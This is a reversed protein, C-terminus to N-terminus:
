ESAQLWIMAAPRKHFSGFEYGGMRSMAQSATEHEFPACLYATRMGRLFETSSVDDLFSRLERVDEEAASAGSYNVLISRIDTDAIKRWLEAKAESRERYTVVGSYRVEAVGIDPFLQITWAM